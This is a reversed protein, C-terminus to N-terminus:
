KEAVIDAPSVLYYTTEGQRDLVALMLKKRNRKAQKSFADLEGVKLPSGESIACVFYKATAENLKAGRPYVRFLLGKGYGTRVVYGRSRLDSYVLFRTWLGPRGEGLRELLTSFDLLEGKTESVVIRQRRALLLAEEPELVLRNQSKLTGYYGAKYLLQAFEDSVVVKGRTLKAHIPEDPLQAGEKEALSKEHKEEAM